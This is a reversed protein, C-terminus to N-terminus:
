RLSRVALLLERAAGLLWELKRVKNGGYRPATVDDQKCYVAAGARASAGALHTVPTPAEVLPVRPIAALGPWREIM